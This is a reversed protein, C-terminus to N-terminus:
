ASHKKNCQRAGNLWNNLSIIGHKASCLCYDYNKIKAIGYDSYETCIINEKHTLSPAIRRVFAGDGAGIELLTFDTLQRNDVMEKITEYTLEHEWKGTPYAGNQYALRYFASDGGIFPDAFCFSCNECRIIRCKYGKWLKEIHSQLKFFVEEDKEKLIFHQASQGSTISYLLLGHDSYCVPCVAKVSILDYLM